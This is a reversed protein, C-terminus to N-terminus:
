GDGRNHRLSSSAFLHQARLVGTQADVVIGTRKAYDLLSLQPEVLLPEAALKDLVEYVAQVSADRPQAPTGWKLLAFRRVGRLGLGADRTLERTCVTAGHVFEAGLERGDERTWCRGGIRDAAELVAVTKGAAVLARACALGAAGAGVVVCDLLLGEMAKM